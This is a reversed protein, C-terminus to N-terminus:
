GSLSENIKLQESTLNSTRFKKPTVGIFRRFQYCYYAADTFECKYAIDTISLDTNRLLHVSMAIKKSLLYEKFSVQMVKKFVRSFHGPSLGVADAAENLSINFSTRTEIAIVFNIIMSFISQSDTESSIKESTIAHQLVTNLLLILLPRIENDTHADENVDSFWKFIFDLRDADKESLSIVVGIHPELVPLLYKLNSLMARDYQLIYREHDGTFELEMDHLVLPSVYILTNDEIRFKERGICYSGKAKRFWMIEHEFHVHPKVYMGKEPVKERARLIFDLGTKTELKEFFYDTNIPTPM